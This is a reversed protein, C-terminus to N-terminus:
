VSLLCGCWHGCIFVTTYARSSLDECCWFEEAIAEELLVVAGIMADRTEKRRRRKAEMAGQECAWFEVM